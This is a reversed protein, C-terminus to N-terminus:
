FMRYLTLQYLYRHLYALITTLIIESQSSNLKGVVYRSDTIDINSCSVEPSRHLVISWHLFLCQIIYQLTDNILYRM